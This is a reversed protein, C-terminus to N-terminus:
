RQNKECWEEDPLDKLFLFANNRQDSALQDLERKAAPYGEKSALNLLRGAEYIIEKTAIYERILDCALIFKEEPTIPDKSILESNRISDIIAQLQHEQQFDFSIIAEKKEKGEKVNVKINWDLDSLQNM